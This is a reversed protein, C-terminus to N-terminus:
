SQLTVIGFKVAVNSATLYVFGDAQRWGTLEVPGFIRYEGAPVSITTLDGLRGYPDGISNITVTYPSGGTNHIIVLDKGQAIFQNGNATDCATM